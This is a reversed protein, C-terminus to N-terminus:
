EFGEPTNDKPPCVHRQLTAKEYLVHIGKVRTWYVSNAGCFKCTIRPGYAHRIFPAPGYYEEDGERDNLSGWADGEHDFTDSM